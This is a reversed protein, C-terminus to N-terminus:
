AAPCTTAPVAGTRVSVRNTSGRSAIEGIAKECNALCKNTKPFIFFMRSGPCRGVYSLNRLIQYYKVFTGFELWKTEVLAGLPDVHFNKLKDTAIRTIRHGARLFRFATVM